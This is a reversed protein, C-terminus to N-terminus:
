ASLTKPRWVTLLAGAVFVSSYTGFTIGFLMAFSFDHIVSGGFLYLALVALVTTLSTVVGRSLVENISVNIIELLNLQSGRKIMTERIRDFIVVTDNLSYGAITLLATVILLNIEINFMWCVGLVALVDHFTAIAAAVGFKIDFRFALYIIVGAMSILIAQFAKQRLTESVSSGIESESDLAFNLNKFNKQLVATIKEALNGVTEESQKMKVILRNENTVQQLEVDGLNNNKFVPRVESLTFPASTTYELMSGGTFDIGLNAQGRAIQLFAILGILCV